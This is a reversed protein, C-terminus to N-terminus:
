RRILGIWRCFLPSKLHRHTKSRTLYHDEDSLLIFFEFFSCRNSIISYLGDSKEDERGCNSKKRCKVLRTQKGGSGDRGDTGTRTPQRRRRLGLILWDVIREILRRAAARLSVGAWPWHHQAVDCGPVCWRMAGRRCRTVLHPTRQTTAIAARITSIKRAGSRSRVHLPALSRLHKVLSLRPAWWM